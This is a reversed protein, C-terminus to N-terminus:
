VRIEPLVITTHKTAPKMVTSNCTNIKRTKKTFLKKKYIYCTSISVSQTSTLLLLLSLTQTLLVTTLSTFGVFFILSNRVCHQRHIM